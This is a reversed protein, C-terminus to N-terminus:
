KLIMASIHQKINGEMKKTGDQKMQVKILDAYPLISKAIHTHVRMLLGILNLVYM